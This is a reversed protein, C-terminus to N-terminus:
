DQWGSNYGTLGCPLLLSGIRALHGRVEVTHGGLYTFTIKQFLLKVEILLVKAKTFSSKSTKGKVKRKVSNIKLLSNM